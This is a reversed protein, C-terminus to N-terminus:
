KKALSPSIAMAADRSSILPAVLLDKMKESVPAWYVKNKMPSLSCIVDFVFVLQFQSGM